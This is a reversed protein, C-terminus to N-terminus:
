ERRELVLGSVSLSVYRIYSEVGYCDVVARVNRVEGGVFSLPVEVARPADEDGVAWVLVDAHFVELARHYIILLQDESRQPLLGSSRRRVHLRLDSMYRREHM